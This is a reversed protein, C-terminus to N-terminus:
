SGTPKLGFAAPEDGNRDRKPTNSLSTLWSPSASAIASWATFRPGPPNPSPVIVTSGEILKTWYASLDDASKGRVSVFVPNTGADYPQSSPVDYAM